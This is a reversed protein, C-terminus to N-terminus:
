LQPPFHRHHGLFHSCVCLYSLLLRGECSDVRFVPKDRWCVVAFAGQQEACIGAMITSCKGQPRTAHVSKWPLLMLSVSEEVRKPPWLPIKHLLCSQSSFCAFFLYYGGSLNCWGSRVITTNYWVTEEDRVRLLTKAKWSRRQPDKRTCSGYVYTSISCSM